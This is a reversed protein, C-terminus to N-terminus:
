NLLEGESGGGDWEGAWGDLPGAATMMQSQVRGGNAYTLSCLPLSRSAAAPPATVRGASAELSPPAASCCILYKNPLALSSSGCKFDPCGSEGCLSVVSFRFAMLLTIIAVKLPRRKTRKKRGEYILITPFSHNLHIFLNGVRLVDM